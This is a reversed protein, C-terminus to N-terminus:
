VCADCRDALWGKWCWACYLKGDDAEVVDEPAKCAACRTPQPEVRVSEAAAAKCRARREAAFAAIPVISLPCGKELLVRACPECQREVCIEVRTHHASAHMWEVLHALARQPQAPSAYVNHPVRGGACFLPVGVCCFADTENTWAACESALRWRETWSAADPPPEGYQDYKHWELLRERSKFYGAPSIPLGGIYSDLVQDAAEFAVDRVRRVAEAEAERARQAAARAAARAVAAEAATEAVLDTVLREVQAAAEAAIAEPETLPGQLFRCNRGTAEEKAYGTTRCFENNVYVMPAGAITMDSIVICAPMTEAMTVFGSLWDDATMNLGQAVTADAAASHSGNRRLETMM